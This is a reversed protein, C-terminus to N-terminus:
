QTDNRHKKTITVTIIGTKNSCAPRPMQFLFRLIRNDPVHLVTKLFACGWSSVDEGAILSDYKDGMFTVVM